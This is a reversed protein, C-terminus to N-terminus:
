LYDSIIEIVIVIIVIMMVFMLIKGPSWGRGEPM